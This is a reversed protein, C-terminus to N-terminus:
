SAGEWRMLLLESSFGPGLAGCLGIENEQVSNKELYDKIVYMVTASSMNGNQKLVEKSSQLKQENLSLSHIYAEIVKKGGPHALFVSIDEESFRHQALFFDVQEKLWGSIITPIDRSFIVQFGENTFHWGMVDEADKMTVSQTGIVAPITKLNTYEVAANKGSLLAAAIGDGFLSTGILNSKSQDEQQFTLSCLECTVVLVKADPYAKIYEFARSLGAAGGACGLGWIPVRKTFRSFPLVNMLKADLSPTSLGTSSIFFLADIEEYPVIKKLFTKDQLCNTIAEKAHFLAKENYIQNKEEFSHHEQYWEIPQVFQRGEIEGNDFARLLRDIDKFSRKFQARAFDAAKKQNVHHHPLSTGVSLIYAM